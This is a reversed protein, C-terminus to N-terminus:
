DNRSKIKSQITRVDVKLIQSANKINGYKTVAQQMYWIHVEHLSKKVDLIDQWDGSTVNREDVRVTGHILVHKICQELERLNGAWRYGDPMTMRIQKLVEMSLTESSAQDGTLAKAAYKVFLDLQCPDEDLQNVLSPTLIVNGKLRFYFDERFRGNRVEDSLVRNTASVIRGKFQRIQTDGVASYERTQIVRLLKVQIEPSLEGIEDLFVVANEPCMEFWGTKDMVAGTFSGKKHGFLESEILNGSLAVLNVPFWLNIHNHIFQLRKEDFPIYTSMSIAKAVLEKGSGSVGQIMTPIQRMIKHYTNIYNGLHSTFVSEWIQARLNEMYSTSGVLYKFVYYFARRIQFFVAFVHCPSLNNKFRAPLIKLLQKWDLLFRSYFGIKVTSSCGKEFQYILNQFDDHYMHYLYCLSVQFYKDLIAEISKSQESDVVSSVEALVEEVIAMIRKVNPNETEYGAQNSWVRGVDQYKEGLISKEYKLRSELFPNCVAFDSLQGLKTLTHPPIKM